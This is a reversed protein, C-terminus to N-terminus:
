IRSLVYFQMRGPSVWIAILLTITVTILYNIPFCMDWWTDFIEEGLYSLFWCPIKWVILIFEFNNLCNDTLDFFFCFGIWLLLKTTKRWDRRWNNNGFAHEFGLSAIQHHGSYCILTEVTEIPFSSTNYYFFIIWISKILSTWFTSKYTHINLNLYFMLYSILLSISKTPKRLCGCAGGVVVYESYLVIHILDCTVFSM